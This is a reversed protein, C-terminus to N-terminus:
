RENNSGKIEKSYKENLNLVYLAKLRAPETWIPLDFGTSGDFKKFAKFEYEVKKSAKPNDKQLKVLEYAYKDFEFDTWITKGIVYYLTSHIILMIRLHKIRDEVSEIIIDEKSKKSNM